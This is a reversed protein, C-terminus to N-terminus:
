EVRGIEQTREFLQWDRCTKQHARLETLTDYEASCVCKCGGSM